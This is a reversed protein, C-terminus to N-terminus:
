RYLRRIPSRSSPPRNQASLTELITVAERISSQHVKALHCSVLVLSRAEEVDLKKRGGSGKRIPNSQRLRWLAVRDSILGEVGLTEAAKLMAESGLGTLSELALLVLDIQTKINDLHQDNPQAQDGWNLLPHSQSPNRSDSKPAAM